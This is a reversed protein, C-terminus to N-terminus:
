LRNDTTFASGDGAPDFTGAAVFGGDVTLATGTVFGSMADSALYLAAQAIDEPAGARAMPIAHSLRDVFGSDRMYAATLPTEILGPCIANIRVGHPALDQSLSRTLGLIGAKSASYAPRMSFGTLGTVSSICVISGSGQDVMRRAGAQACHFTGSLNVGIVADWEDAPLELPPRIERIGASCVLVDIRELGKIAAHVAAADRVDLGIATHGAGAGGLADATARAAQEDLDAVVVRAGEAAFRRAIGAGIGSAGGTVVAVKEELTM